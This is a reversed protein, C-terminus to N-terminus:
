SVYAVILSVKGDGSRGLVVRGVQAHPLTDSLRRMAAADLAAERALVKIGAGEAIMAM